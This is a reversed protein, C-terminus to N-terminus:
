PKRVIKGLFLPHRYVVILCRMVADMGCHFENVVTISSWITPILKGYFTAQLSTCGLNGQTKYEGQNTRKEHCCVKQFFIYVKVWSKKILCQGM